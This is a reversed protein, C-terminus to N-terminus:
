LIAGFDGNKLTFLLGIRYSKRAPLPSIGYLTFVSDTASGDQKQKKKLNKLYPRQVPVRQKNQNFTLIM